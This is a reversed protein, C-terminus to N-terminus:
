FNFFDRGVVLGSSDRTMTPVHNLKVLYFLGYALAVLLGIRLLLPLRDDREDIM